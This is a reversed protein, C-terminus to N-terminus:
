ASLFCSWFFFSYCNAPGILREAAADIEDQNRRRSELFFQLILCNATCRAARIPSPAAPQWQQLQLNVEEEREEEEQCCREGNTAEHMGIVGGLLGRDSHREQSRKTRAKSGLCQIFFFAFSDLLGFFFFSSIFLQPPCRHRQLGEKIRHPTILYGAVDSSSQRLQLRILSSHGEM